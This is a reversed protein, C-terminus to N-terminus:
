IHPKYHNTPLHPSLPPSPTPTNPSHQHHTTPPTHTATTPTPAHQKENNKHPPANHPTTKQPTPSPPTASTSTTPPNSPADPTTHGTYTNTTPNYRLITTAIYDGTTPDTIFAQYTPTNEPHTHPKVPITITIATPDTTHPLVTITNEASAAPGHGTLRWDPLRYHARQPNTTRPSSPASKM